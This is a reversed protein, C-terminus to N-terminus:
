ERPYKKDTKNSAEALLHILELFDREEPTAKPSGSDPGSSVDHQAHHHDYIMKSGAALAAGALAAGAVVVAEKIERLKDQPTKTEAPNGADSSGDSYDNPIKSSRGSQKRGFRRSNERPKIDPPM